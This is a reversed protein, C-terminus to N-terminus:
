NIKQWSRLSEEITKGNEYLPKHTMCVYFSPTLLHQKGKIYPLRAKEKKYSSGPIKWRIICIETFTPFSFGGSGQIQKFLVPLNHLSFHFCFQNAASHNHWGCTLFPSSFLASSSCESVFGEPTPLHSLNFLGQESSPAPSVAQYPFLM